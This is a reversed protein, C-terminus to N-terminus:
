CVAIPEVVGPPPSGLWFFTALCGASSIQDLNPNYWLDVGGPVRPHLHVWSLSWSTGWRFYIACVLLVFPDQGLHHARGEPSGGELCVRHVRGGARVSGPKGSRCIVHASEQCPGSACVLLHIDGERRRGEM